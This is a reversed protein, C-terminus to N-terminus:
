TYVTLYNQSWIDLNMRKSNFHKTVNYTNQVDLYKDAQTPSLLAKLLKLSERVTKKEKILLILSRDTYTNIYKDVEAIAKRRNRYENLKDIYLRNADIYVTRDQIRPIATIIRDTSGYDAPDPRDPEELVTPTENDPDIYNWCDLNIALRTVIYYWIDQDSSNSLIPDVIVATRTPQETRPM